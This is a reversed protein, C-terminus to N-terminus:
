RLLNVHGIVVEAKNGSGNFEYSLKFVYVGQPVLQNAHKGDWTDGPTTSEFIMEGLRNYISFHYHQYGCNSVPVFFNNINDENPTFSNPIYLSCICDHTVSEYSDYFDITITDTTSGCANTVLVVYTGHTAVQFISNNSNDQWLYSAGPNTADLEIDIISNNCITTDSGLDVEPISTQYTVNVQDFASCNGMTSQVSYIGPQTVTFTPNTSADQWLYAAGPFTADLLLHDGVCLITDNGLTIVPAPDYSVIISDTATGAANTVEVWYIGATTVTYTPNSSGDQWLYSAGTTNPNLLMTQGQCLSTDNGLNLDPVTIPVIFISDIGMRLKGMPISVQDPDDDVPLFKVTHIGATATFYFSRFEWIFSTSGSPELSVTSASIGALTNDVYVAWGGSTDLIDTQKVVSQYFGIMYSNGIIFGPVTQMIGEQFFTFGEDSLGGSVFTAGSYPNGNIGIAAWPGFMGTLDPTASGIDTALCVPDTYPVNQWGTPLSSMGPVGDLDPNIITQAQISIFSTALVVVVLYTLFHRM